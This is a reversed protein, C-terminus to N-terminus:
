VVLGSPIPMPSDIQLVITSACPPLSHASDILSLPAVNRNVKGVTAAVSVFAIKSVARSSQRSKSFLRAALSQIGRLRMRPTQRHAAGCTRVASTEDARCRRECEHAPIHGSLELESELQCKLPREIQHAARPNAQVQLASTV